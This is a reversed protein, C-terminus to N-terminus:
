EARGAEEGQVRTGHREVGREKGRGDRLIERSEDWVWWEGNILIRNDGVWVKNGKEEEGKAIERIKWRMRREECTLDKM